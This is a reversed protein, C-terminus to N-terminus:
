CLDKLVLSTYDRRKNEFIISDKILDLKLKRNNIDLAQKVIFRNFDIVKPHNLFEEVDMWKCAAIEIESKDITASTAKLLVVAYIDSNGFM